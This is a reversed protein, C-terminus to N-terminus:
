YQFFCKVANVRYLSFAECINSELYSNWIRSELKNQRPRLLVKGRAQAIISSSSVANTRVM